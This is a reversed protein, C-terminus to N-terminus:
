SRVSWLELRIDQYKAGVHICCSNTEVIEQWIPHEQHIEFYVYNAHFPIQRPAAPLTTMPVGAVGKSVMEKIHSLPGIKIQNPLDARLDEQPTNAYVSLIILGEDFLSDNINDAAFLGNSHPVLTVSKAHQELVMSLSKRLSDFLPNFTQQLDSHDYSFTNDILRNQNTYTSLQALLDVLVEYASIAYLRPLEIMHKIKVVFQNMLQLMMFDSVVASESQDSQELRKSLIESRYILLGYMEELTQFLYAQTNITLRPEIFQQDLYIKNDPRVEKVRAIPILCYESLDHQDTLCQAKLAKVEIDTLHANDSVTDASQIFKNRYRIHENGEVDNIICRRDHLALYVTIDRTGKAIQIPEPLVDISPADYYSGDQFVAKVSDIVLKGQDLFDANIKIDEIGYGFPLSMQTLQALRNDWFREQQQFHQPRLFMGERWVSKNVFTM